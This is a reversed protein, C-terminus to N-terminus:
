VSAPASAEGGCVDTDSSRHIFANAYLAYYRIMVQGKDPIHATAGDLKWAVATGEAYDKKGSVIGYPCFTLVLGKIVGLGV